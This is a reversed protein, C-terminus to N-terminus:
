GVYMKMKRTTENRRAKGGIFYGWEGEGVKTSCEEDM